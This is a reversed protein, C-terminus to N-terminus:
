FKFGINSSTRADRHRASIFQNYTHIYQALHMQLEKHKMNTVLKKVRAYARHVKKKKRRLIILKVNISYLVYVRKKKACIFYINQYSM